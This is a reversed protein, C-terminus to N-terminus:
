DFAHVKVLLVIQILASAIGASALVSLQIDSNTRWPVAIVAVLIAVDFVVAILLPLVILPELVRRTRIGLSIAWIIDVVALAAFLAPFGVKSGRTAETSIVNGIFMLIVGEMTLMTLDVLWPMGGTAASLVFYGSLFLALGLLFFSVVLVADLALVGHESLASSAVAVANQYAIAILFGLFAVAAGNRVDRFLPHPKADVEASAKPGPEVAM